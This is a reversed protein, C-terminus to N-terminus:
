KTGAGPAYAAAQLVGDRVQAAVDHVAAPGHPIFVTAARSTAGIDRITDFYQTALVMDMVSKEDPVFRRLGEVIAQRQRAVGVGALYKSEAEGEARKVQQIKDAEAREAAAVRLRAAANIDNMARKVVEDPEIDVILTQVIEYGYMTMAKALEEEVARAVVNKQEFVQDLNMNPVSARIVDFVYSQIQERANSLRYFADYAKDAIARYQVSAVVTVFVNDKSKTECRVDLQQVRLSLYGAVRRGVCWPMFHCGPQLVTDYRGCTEEMAVTSQEVCACCLLQPLDASHISSSSGAGM